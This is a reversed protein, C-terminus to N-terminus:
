LDEAYILEHLDCRASLIADLATDKKAHWLLRQAGRAKAEERTRRKLEGFIGAGRMEKTIFFLDNACYVWGAYHLHTQVFNVSYGILQQGDFALLILLVGADELMRYRVVDPQLKMHARQERKVLEDYHELFLLGAQNVLEDLTGLRVQIASGGAPRTVM